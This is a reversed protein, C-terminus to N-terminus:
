NQDMEQYWPCSIGVQSLKQVGGFQKGPSTRVDGVALAEEESSEAESISDHHHSPSDNALVNWKGGQHKVPTRFPYDSMLSVEHM